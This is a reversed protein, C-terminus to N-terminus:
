EGILKRLFYLKSLLENNVKAFDNRHYSSEIIEIMQEIEFQKYNAVNGELGFLEMIELYKDSWGIVFPLVNMKLSSVMGHFRSCISFECNSLLAKIELASLENQPFIDGSAITLKKIFFRDDIGADDYEHALFIFKFGKKRYYNVISKYGEIVKEIKWKIFLVNPLIAIYKSKHDVGYRDSIEYIKEKTPNLFGFALDPMFHYNNQHSLKKIFRFSHNGRPLIVDMIEFSKKALWRQIKNENPGYSQPMGIYKKKLNKTIHIKLFSTFADNFGYNSSFSIGHIELVADNEKLRKSFQSLTFISHTIYDLAMFFIEIKYLYKLSIKSVVEHLKIPLNYKLIVKKDYTPYFSILSYKNQKDLLNIAGVVMAVGGKSRLSVGTILYSKM